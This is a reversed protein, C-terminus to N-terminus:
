EVFKHQTTYGSGGVSYYTNKMVQYEPGFSKVGNPPLTFRNKGGTSQFWLQLEEETLNTLHVEYNGSMAISENHTSLVPLSEGGENDGFLSDCSYMLLLISILLGIKRVM